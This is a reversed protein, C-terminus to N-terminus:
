IFKGRVFEGGSYTNGVLNKRDFEGSYVKGFLNEWIFEASYIRGDKRYLRRRLRTVSAGAASNKNYLRRM